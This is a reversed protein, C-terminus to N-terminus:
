KKKFNATLEMDETLRITIEAQQETVGGSWGAFVYGERTPPEPLELLQGYMQNHAPVDTGGKSDFTVTLGPDQLEMAVLLLMALICVVIIVNLSKVSINVSYIIKIVFVILLLRASPVIEAGADFLTAWLANIEAESQLPSVLMIRSMVGLSSRSAVMSQRRASPTFISYEPSVAFTYPISRESDTGVMASLQRSLPLVRRNRM